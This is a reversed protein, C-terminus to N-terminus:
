TERAAEASAEKLLADKLRARVEEMQKRRAIAAEGAAKLAAM